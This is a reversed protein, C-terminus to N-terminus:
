SGRSEISSGSPLGARNLPHSRIRYETTRLGRMLTKFGKYAHIASFPVSYRAITRIIEKLIMEAPLGTEGYAATKRALRYMAPNSLYLHMRNACLFLDLAIVATRKNGNLFAHNSILSHFLAAAKEEIHPFIEQGCATQFPRYVASNLLNEDRHEAASVPEIGPWWLSVLSDHCFEVFAASLPFAKRNRLL